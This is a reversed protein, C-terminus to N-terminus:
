NNMNKSPEISVVMGKYSACIVHSFTNWLRPLTVMPCSNSSCGWKFDEPPEPQHCTLYSVAIHRATHGLMALHSLSPITRSQM